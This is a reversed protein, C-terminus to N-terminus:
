DVAAQAPGAIPLGAGAAPLDDLTASVSCGFVLTSRGKTVDQIIRLTQRKARRERVRQHRIVDDQFPGLAGGASEEPPSSETVAINVFQSGRLHSSAARESESRPHLVRSSAIVLIEPNM